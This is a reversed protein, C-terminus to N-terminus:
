GEDPSWPPLMGLLIVGSDRSCNLLSFNAIMWSL